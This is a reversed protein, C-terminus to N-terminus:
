QIILRTSKRTNDKLDAQIIYIGSQLGDAKSSYIGTSETIVEQKIIKGTIDLISVKEILENAFLTFYHGSYVPNPYVGIKSKKEVKSSSIGIPNVVCNHYHLHSWNNDINTTDWGISDWQVSPDFFDIAPNMEGQVIDFKRVLRNNSTWSLWYYTGAQYDLTDINTWGEGPDQGIKGIIDAPAGTPTVLAIADNGNYYMPTPYIGSCNQDALEYLATDVHANGFDPNPTIQGNSIVITGYPGIENPGEKLQIPLESTWQFSGNSFRQIKYGDLSKTTNTPNYIELAKNQQSGELYESFFLESQAFISLSLGLTLTLLLIKKM